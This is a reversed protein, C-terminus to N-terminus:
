GAGVIHFDAPMARSDWLMSLVQEYGHVWVKPNFVASKSRAELLCARTHQLVDPRAVSRALLSSYERRTRMLTAGCGARLVISAALRSSLPEGACTLLPVGAFLADIATTHSTVLQTDAVIDCQQLRLLHLPKPLMPEFQVRACRKPQGNACFGCSGSGSRVWQRIADVAARPHALLSVTVNRGCAKELWVDFVSPDVKYLNNYNCVRLVKSSGHSARNGEDTSIPGYAQAYDATYYGGVVYLLKETYDGQLEPPSSVCDTAFHSVMPLALTAPYGLYALQRAAVGCVFIENTRGLSTWGDLNVLVHVRHANIESCSATVSLTSLDAFAGCAAVLKSRASSGDAPNLGFCASSIRHTHYALVGHILHTTPHEGFAYSVYGVRLRPKTRAGDLVLPAPVAWKAAGHVARAAATTYRGYAVAIRFRLTANLEYSLAHWPKILPRPGNATGSETYARDAIAELRAWRSSRGNWHCLMENLRVLNVYAEDSSEGHEVVWALEDAAAQLNGQETFASALNLRAAESSPMARVCRRFLLEAESFRAQSYLVAGLNSLAAQMNPAPLRLVLRYAREALQLAGAHLAHTAYGVLDASWGAHLRVPRSQLAIEYARMANASPVTGDLTRALESRADAVTRRGRRACM